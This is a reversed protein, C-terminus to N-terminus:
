QVPNRALEAKADLVAQKLKQIEGERLQQMFHHGEIAEDEAMKLATKKDILYSAPCNRARAISDRAQFIHRLFVKTRKNLKKYGPVRAWEPKDPHAPQACRPMQREVRQIVAEEQTQLEAELSAKLEFLYRVDDLAYQIQEDKLPRILWNSMQKSKKAKKGETDLRLNREILATLGAEFGLAQAIVRLDFVNKLEIGYSRRVLTSDGTCDFMIKEIPSELLTKLAAPSVKMADVIYFDTRDYLQILCLHEGYIHLNFEGEFDMAVTTIKNQQWRDTLAELDHDTSILFYDM